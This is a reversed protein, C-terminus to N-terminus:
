LCLRMEQLKSITMMIRSSFRLTSLIEFRVFFYAPDFSISSSRDSEAFTNFISM